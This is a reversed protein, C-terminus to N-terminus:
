AAPRGTASLLSKVARFKGNAERELEPVYEFRVELLPSIWQAIMRRIFAEDRVAYGPRVVVRLVIEGLREQVVQCERVSATEKFVYDFRMIRRGEPTVVYDDMRGEIHQLARSERGCRCRFDDPEWVATDGVSYRILPFESCAFGTALISARVRGGADTEAEAAELYGFEFDEHYGFHECQSANGCGESFGYQDSIRAQTFAEIDCRQFDLVNEAGTFVWRPKNDLELGQERAAAVFAHIVSPYGSYYVFHESGLFECVAAAKNVTMHQMNLLAQAMPRNWRWFPPRQQAAPVVLKGTFNAHLDGPQVGFRRRHRWWVAWQFAISDPTSFFQLSKGTTGSTHRPILRRRPALRSVMRPGNDRVDEKTTVPLRQLDERGRIDAPRLHRRDMVDRYYPVNEYAYAVLVRIQEDQYAEIQARTWRESETLWGLRRRFEAGFRIRSERYGQWSCAANQLPVPLREYLSMLQSTAM